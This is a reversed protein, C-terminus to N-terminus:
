PQAMMERLISLGEQLKADPAAYSIRFHTDRRSFVSGPIVLVRREVAREVFTTASMKLQPPVEVFAYFAGGPRVVHAVSDFTQMVMDRRKQYAAVHASLDVSFAAALGFQAMSPACVFTYQQLKAMQAIIPRPGAVYGM